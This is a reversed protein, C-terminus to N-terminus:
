SETAVQCDCGKSRLLRKQEVIPILRTRQRRDGTALRPDLPSAHAYGRRAMEGVLQEHRLFLAARKGEWRRTEPHASYGKNRGILILWLAHLERHEGLLHQRCLLRPPLDWIRM